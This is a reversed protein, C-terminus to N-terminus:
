MGALYCLGMTGPGAHTGIVPSVPSLTSEFINEKGLRQIARDMLIQAPESSDTFLSALHIKGASKGLKQEVLDLMRDVAKSMTRVKEVAEIKGDRLELIPKLDMVTGLFAAASGIRGGRKLYELTKVVFYVGSKAKAQLAIQECEELSAGQEALRAALLIQFGMAMSTSESDVIRIKEGPLMEKAKIASDMTGSLKGSIHISLIEYGKSLLSQYKEKFVSPSPQSTSPSSTSNKLREYFEDTTIEELDKLSQNDWLLILPIVFIPLDQSLNGPIYASSDTVIAVKSM